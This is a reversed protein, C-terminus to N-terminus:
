YEKLYCLNAMLDKMAEFVIFDTGSLSLSIEDDSRIIEIEIGGSYTVCIASILKENEIVRPFTFIKEQM